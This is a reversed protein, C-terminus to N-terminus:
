DPLAVLTPVRPRFSRGGRAEKGVLENAFVWSERPMPALDTVELFSQPGTEEDDEDDEDGEDDEDPDVQEIAMQEQPHDAPTPAPHEEVWTGPLGAPWPEGVHHAVRRVFRGRWTAAPVELEGSDTAMVLVPTGGTARDLDGPGGAPLVCTVSAAAELAELHRLPVAMLLAREELM